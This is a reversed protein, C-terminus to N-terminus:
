AIRCRFPVKLLSLGEHAYLAFFRKLEDEWGLIPSDHKRGATGPEIWRSGCRRWPLTM